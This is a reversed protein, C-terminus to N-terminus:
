TTNLFKKSFNSGYDFANLKTTPTSFFKCFYLFTIKAFSVDLQINTLAKPFVM